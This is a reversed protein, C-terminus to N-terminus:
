FVFLTCHFLTRCCTLNKKNHTTKIINKEQNENGDYLSLLIKIKKWMWWFSSISRNLRVFITRLGQQLYWHLNWPTIGFNSIFAHIELPETFFILFNRSIVSSFFNFGSYTDIKRGRSFDLELTFVICSDCIFILFYRWRWIVDHASRSTRFFWQLLTCDKHCKRICYLVSEEM